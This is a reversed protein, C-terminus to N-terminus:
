VLSQLESTHEESRHLRTKVFKMAFFALKTTTTSVPPTLVLHILRNILNYIKSKGSIILGRYLESLTFMNQFDSHKPVDFQYHHLQFRLSIKERTTFNEPYFKEVLNCIDDAYSTDIRQM